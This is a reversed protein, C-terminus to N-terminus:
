KKRDKMELCIKAIREYSIKISLLDLLKKTLTDWDLYMHGTVEHKFLSGGNEAQTLVEYIGAEIREKSDVPLDNVHAIRDATKFGLGSIETLEYPYRKVNQLAQDGYKTYIQMIKGAPIDFSYLYAFLEKGAGKEALATKIKDLSKARIGPVELLKDPNSDLIDFVQSGYKSYIKSATVKGIGKLTSLYKIIGEKSSPVIEIYEMMDFNWQDKQNKDRYIKWDGTMEYELAPNTPLNNGSVTFTNISRGDPTKLEELAAYLVVKYADKEYKTFSHKCKIRVPGSKM